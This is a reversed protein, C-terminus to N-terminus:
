CNELKNKYRARLENFFSLYENTKYDPYTWPFDTFGHKKFTLTIEAFIGDRLYIRHAFDKTTALVMKALTVYGPDLNAIRGEGINDFLAYRSEIENTKIKAEVIEDPLLLNEFAFFIKELESGMEERYYDTFDFNFVPSEFEIPGFLSELESRIKAVPAQPAYIVGCFFQVRQPTRVEGM